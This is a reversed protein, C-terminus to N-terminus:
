LHRESRDARGIINLPTSLRSAEVAELDPRSLSSRRPAPRGPAEDSLSAAADQPNARALWSECWGARRAVAARDRRGTPLPASHQGPPVLVLMTAFDTEPLTSFAAAEHLVGLTVSAGM